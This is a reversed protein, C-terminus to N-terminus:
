LGLVKTLKTMLESVPMSEDSSQHFIQQLRPMVRIAFDLEHNQGETYAGIAVRDKNEDYLALLRRVKHAVKAQDENAVKDALRSISDLVSVAPFQGKNAMERTLMIHGDLVARLNDSVPENFDDGEVLVSYIGTISGKNKFNGTREILAPLVSFTSPTYGRSTPPEGRALGIERYATAFRTVSDMIFLVDKGKQCFYEAISSATYAANVRVLPLADATAVLIVTNRMGEPGLTYEIFEEVERGREGILAIVNIDASSHKALMALLTSKGVGSGAFIGVRQGKGLPLCSDIIAVGSHLPETILQRSLPNIPAPLLPMAEVGAIDGKGDIPYGYADVVRGIFADSVKISPVDGIRTVRAGPYVGRTSTQPLCILKGDRFGVVEALVPTEEQLSQIQCIDGLCADLGSCILTSGSCEVVKGVPGSLEAQEITHVYRTSDIAQRM